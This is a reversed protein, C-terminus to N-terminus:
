KPITTSTPKISGKTMPKKKLSMKPKEIHADKESANIEETIKRM